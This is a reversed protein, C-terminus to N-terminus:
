GNSFMTRFDTLHLSGETSHYLLDFLFSLVHFIGHFSIFEFPIIHQSVQLIICCYKLYKHMKDSTKMAQM